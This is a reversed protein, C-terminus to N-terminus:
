FKLVTTSHLTGGVQITLFYSGKPLDGVNLRQRRMGMGPEVAQQMVLRGGVDFLGIQASRNDPLFFQVDLWQHFPNPYTGIVLAEVPIGEVGTDLNRTNFPAPTGVMTPSPVSPGPSATLHRSGDLSIWAEEFNEGPNPQDIADVYWWEGQVRTRNVDFILYGHQSLDIFKMHPNLLQLLFQPVPIPSNSSTVSTVVYEVGASGAGTNQNYNQYPLDNAWSTHIDGTLVVLNEVGNTMVSDYLRTREAPYGDWQDDNFTIGAAGLPAMMVQQGLVQWKANSASMNATLWSFQQQGLLTRNPDTNNTGDQEDRGILRTDLMNLDMLDGFPFRRYIRLTDNPDPLRLPMWEAYARIGASKRDFWNGETAPDHNGAGGAWANNATEHDDWVSFFPYQQHLRLLDPDLKYHSHRMRYDALTIIEVAPELARNDGYEGDGYEYIYDGLHIVAFVDNRARIRDYANFYGEAYNSCSVVAFRLSDVSGVPLTRTRGILSYRGYAEFEYYYFTYPQLGTVDVKVTYDRSADTTATGTQVIQTMATDLAIRWTVDVSASDTTVRTWLVVRDSEPDGSAVGHYFPALTPNPPNRYPSNPRDQANLATGTGLLLALLPFLRLFQM